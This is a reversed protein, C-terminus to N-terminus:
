PAFADGSAAITARASRMAVDIIGGAPGPLIIRIPKSPYTEARAGFPAALTVALFLRRKIM